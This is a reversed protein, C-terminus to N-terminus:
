PAANGLCTWDKIGNQEEESFWSLESTHVAHSTACSHARGTGAQTDSSYYYKVAQLHVGDFAPASSAFSGRESHTVEQHYM